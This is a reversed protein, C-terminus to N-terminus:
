LWGISRLIIIWFLLSVMSLTTSWVVSQRALEGYCNMYEAMVAAAAPSPSGYLALLASIVAPTLLLLRCEVTLYFLCFGIAPAVLLRLINGIFLQKKLNSISSFSIQAGLLVLVLPSSMKALSTITTYLWPLNAAITFIPNGEPTLPLLARFALCGIGAIQALILPNLIISRVINSIKTKQKVGNSFYTLCIVAMINFYLISPAQLSASVAIGAPGGLAEAMAAGVVAYNSRFAMQIIVGRQNFEKTALQAVIFGVLTILFLSGITFLMLGVPIDELGKLIYVNTFMLAPICYKFTFSNMKKLTTHDFLGQRHLEFGLFMLLIMPAIANFGFMFVDLM